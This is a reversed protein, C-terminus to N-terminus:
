GWPGLSVILRFALWSSVMYKLVDRLKGMCTLHDDWLARLSDLFLQGAAAQTVNSSASEGGSHPPYVPVIKARAEATLHASILEAVKNYLEHGKKHLVQDPPAWTLAPSGM